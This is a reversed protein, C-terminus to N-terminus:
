VAKTFASYWYNAGDYFVFFANAAGGADDITGMQGATAFGFAGALELATPAAHTIDATSHKSIVGGSATLTEDVVVKGADVKIAEHNTSNIYVSYETGGGSTGADDIRLCVGKEANASTGAFEIKLMSTDVHAHTGDGTLELMGVGDAGVWNGTTGDILAIPVAHNAPSILELCKGDTATQTVKVGSGASDISVVLGNKNNTTDNQTISIADANANDAITTAFGGNATISEDVLVVGADVHLAENNTSSIYAAYSTAQAAGTETIRLCAGGANAAALNGTSVIELVRSNATPAGTSSHLYALSGDLAGTTRVDIVGTNNASTIAGTINLAKQALQNAMAIAIVDGTRAAGASIDIAAYDGDHSIELGKANGTANQDILLASGTSGTNTQEIEVVAASSAAHNRKYYSTIDQTTDVEIKGNDVQVNGAAVTLMDSAAVGTIEVEGDEKIGFVVASGTNDYAQIYYGGNLTGETASLKLITGTTAANATLDLVTGTVVSSSIAIDSGGTNAFTFIGAAEDVADTWTIKGDSITLDGTVTPTSLNSGSLESLTVAVGAHSDYFKLDTGDFQIYSDTAGSAGLTLNVSDAGINITGTTTLNDNDFTVDGGTSIFKIDGGSSKIFLDTGDGYFRLKNTADGVQFANGESTAGDIIKGADFSADLTGAAAAALQALTKAGTLSDKFTLSTGDFYISSDTVGSAGFAVYRSDAALVLNGAIDLGTTGSPKEILDLIERLYPPMGLRSTGQSITAM